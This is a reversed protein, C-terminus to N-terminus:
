INSNNFRYVDCGLTIIRKEYDLEIEEITFKVSQGNIPILVLFGISARNPSNVGLKRLTECCLTLKITARESRKPFRVEDEIYWFYYFLNDTYESDFHMIANRNQYTPRVKNPDIALTLVKDYPYLTNYPLYKQPLIFRAEADLLSTNTDHDILKWGNWAEVSLVVLSESESTDTSTNYWIGAPPYPVGFIPTFLEYIAQRIYGTEIFGAEVDDTTKTMTFDALVVQTGGGFSSSYNPFGFNAVRNYSSKMDAGKLEADESFRVELYKQSKRESITTIDICDFLWSKHAENSVFDLVPTTFILADKRHFFLTNGYIEWKANFVQKLKDLFDKALVLPSIGNVWMTTSNSKISTDSSDYMLKLNRYPSNFAGFISGLGRKPEALTQSGEVNTGNEFTTTSINLGCHECVNQIYTRVYPSIKRFKTRFISTYILGLFPILPPVVSAVISIILYAIGNDKDYGVIFRPHSSGVDFYSNGAANPSVDILTSELCTKYLEDETINFSLKCISDNDCSEFTLDDNTVVFTPFTFIEGCSDDTIRVEIANYKSAPTNILHFSVFRVMEGEVEIDSDTYLLRKAEGDKDRGGAKIKVGSGNIIDGTFEYWDPYVPFGTPHTQAANNQVITANAAVQAGAQMDYRIPNGITGQVNITNQKYRAYFRLM